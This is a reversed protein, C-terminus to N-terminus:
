PATTTTMARARAAQLLLEFLAEPLEPVVAAVDLVPAAPAAPDVPEVEALWVAFPVGM